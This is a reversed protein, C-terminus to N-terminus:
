GKKTTVEIVGARNDGGYKYQAEAARYLRISAIDQAPINHLSALPGYHMGDVYVNPVRPASEDVISTPGRDTLFNRRLKAVAEYANVAHSREIEDALIVDSSPSENPPPAHTCAGAGALLVMASLALRRIVSRRMPGPLFPHLRVDVNHPGTERGALYVSPM